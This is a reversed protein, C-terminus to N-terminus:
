KLSFDFFSSWIKKTEILLRSYTFESNTLTKLLVFPQNYHEQCPIKAVVFNKFHDPLNVVVKCVTQRLSRLLLALPLSIIAKM